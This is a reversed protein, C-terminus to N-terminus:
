GTPELRGPNRPPHADQPSASCAGRQGGGLGGREGADEYRRGWACVDGRLFQLSVPLGAEVPKLLLKGPQLLVVDRELLEQGM